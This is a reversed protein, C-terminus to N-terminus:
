PLDDEIPETVSGHLSKAFFGGLMATPIVMLISIVLLPIPLSRDFFVNLLSFFISLIGTFTANLIHHQKAIRGAIYGGILTCCLGLLASMTLLTNDGKLEKELDDPSTGGSIMIVAWVIGFVLGLAMSSGIDVAFGILIAKWKLKDEM